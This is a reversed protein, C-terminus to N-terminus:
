GPWPWLELFSGRGVLKVKRGYYFSNSGRFPPPIVIRRRGRSDIEVKKLFVSLPNKPNSNSQIVPHIQVCGDRDLRVLVYDPIYNNVDSPFNLRWKTDLVLDWQGYFM